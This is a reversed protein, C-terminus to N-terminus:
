GPSRLSDFLNDIARDASMQDYRREKMEDYMRDGYDAQSEELEAKAAMVAHIQGEFDIGTRKAIIALDQELEDFQSENNCELLDSSFQQARYASAATELLSIQEADLEDPEVANLIERLEDSRCGTSTEAVLATIITKRMEDNSPSFRLKSTSVSSLLAVGDTIEVGETAWEALLKGVGAVAVAALRQSNLSEAVQLLTGVRLEISDDFYATGGITHMKHPAALLREFAAAVREPETALLQLVAPAEAQAFTWVQRAQEFQVAGEIMDLANQVDQRVAANLMDLVSPDIVEIQSGPRIFAGHLESLATRWDAPTTRFGYRKSRQANLALFARELLDQACKGNHTYLALLVSRAADSIQQEYAHQWIEAPDSLLNRVFEQYRELRVSKVRRYSSLWEVLRPNFKKHKVIEMYFRGHLLTARYEEPLESFYIHNYLIEARQGISYDGIELVCRDDILRAHKLKESAAVAQSLIHERTTMVLRANPSARVMEIFDLIARDENRTFASAREGLFTAGIFDDFYFIQRKGRQFRDRGTQFDTLISIPEYGDSVYRYLLMKALTTKGVGPPGSIIAVHGKSLMIHARPYAASRVYRKIDAHVREVEFESQVVSANHLARDLVSQSALWLKYHRQEVTPHLGLLNNIDDRGLIDGTALIGGFLVQIDAKNQPSLGVSTVILYRSPKIMAVKPVEKKLDRVLGVLGTEAYHKCQVVTSDNDHTHRFDIGGDKGTKFSELVIGDRAQILDRALEEFDHPSLQKFDYNPM